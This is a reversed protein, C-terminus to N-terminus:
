LDAIFCLLIVDCKGQSAPKLTLASSCHLLLRPHYLASAQLEHM